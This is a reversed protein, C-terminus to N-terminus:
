YKRMVGIVVGQLQVQSADLIIPQMAANAPQLRVRGNDRYFKKLTVDTGGVLAIVMEGNEATKRDEVVVFDGHRIQEDIMSDGKVRLVYTERRGVLDEPVAITENGTVAEIPAGAAVYGLLPLEIARHGVRASLLEVSRSRNWSRRIVGKEQLNTLHKHVTALSSLNFRRGIEELSPAYGHQQIFEQLYDLIERQRKTLPQV